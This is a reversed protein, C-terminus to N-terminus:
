ISRLTENLHEFHNLPSQFHTLEVAALLLTKNYQGLAARHFPQLNCGTESATNREGCEFFAGLPGEWVM